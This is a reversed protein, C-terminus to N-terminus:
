PEGGSGDHSLSSSTDAGAAATDAPPVASRPSLMLGEVVLSVRLAEMRDSATAPESQDISLSRIALLTPGRELAALMKSVGAIDGTADASVSVRTFTSSSATDPRIQVAGLRVGATAAAGSVIGALTAGAAAPSEDGLLAPALSLFRDNRAALSDGIAGSVSLLSRARALDTTAATAREYASQRWSRWAPIGRSLTVLSGISIVGVMLARRDRPSMGIRQALKAPSRRTFAASAGTGIGFRALFRMTPHMM